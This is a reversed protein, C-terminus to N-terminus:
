ITSTRLTENSIRQMTNGKKIAAAARPVSYFPYNILNPLKALSSGTGVFGRVFRSRTFIITGHCRHPRITQKNADTASRAPHNIPKITPLPGPRFFNVRAVFRRFEGAGRAAM